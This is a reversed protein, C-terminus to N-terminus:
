NSVCGYRTKSRPIRFSYYRRKGPCLSAIIYSAAISFKSLRLSGCDSAVCIVFTLSARMIGACGPAAWHACIVSRHGSPSDDFIGLPSLVTRSSSQHSRTSSPLSESASLKKGEWCQCLRRKKKKQYLNRKRPRISAGIWCVCWKGYRPSRSNRRIRPPKAPIGWISTAISGM